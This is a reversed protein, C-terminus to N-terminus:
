INHQLAPIHHGKQRVALVAGFLDCQFIVNKLGQITAVEAGWCLAVIEGGLPDNHCIHTTHISTVVGEKNRFIAAGVSQRKGIAVDTNCM